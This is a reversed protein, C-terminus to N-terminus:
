MLLMAAQQRAADQPAMLSCLCHCHAFIGVCCYFFLRPPFHGILKLERISPADDSHPFPASLRCMHKGRTGKTCTACHRHTNRNMRTLREHHRFEASSAPAPVAAAADRRAPVKLIQQAIGVAHYELPLETVYHTEAAKLLEDRVTKHSAIDAM